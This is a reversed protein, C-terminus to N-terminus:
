YGATTESRPLFCTISRWMFFFQLCPFNLTPAARIGGQSYYSAVFLSGTDLTYRPWRAGPPYLYPSRSRWTQPTEFSISIHDQTRRTDSVLIATNALIQLLQLSSIDERWLPLGVYIFEFSDSLSFGTMPRCWSVNASPSVSSVYSQGHSQICPM